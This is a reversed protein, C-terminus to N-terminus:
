PQPQRLPLDPTAQPKALDRNARTNFKKEKEIVPVPQSIVQGVSNIRISDREATIPMGAEGSRSVHRHGRHRGTMADAPAITVAFLLAGLIFRQM